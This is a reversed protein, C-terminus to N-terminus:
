SCNLISFQQRTIGLGSYVNVDLTDIHSDWTSNQDVTLGLFTFNTVQEKLAVESTQIELIPLIKGSKYFKGFFPTFM